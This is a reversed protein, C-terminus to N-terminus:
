TMNVFGPYTRPNVVAKLKQHHKIRLHCPQSFKGEGNKPGDVNVPIDDEVIYPIGRTNCNYRPTGEIRHDLQPAPLGKSKEGRPDCPTWKGATALSMAIKRARARSGIDMVMSEQRERTNKCKGTLLRSEPIPNRSHNLRDQQKNPDLRVQHLSPLRICVTYM